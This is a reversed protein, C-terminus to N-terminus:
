LDLDQCISPMLIRGIFFNNWNDGKRPAQFGPMNTTARLWSYCRTTPFMKVQEERRARQEKSLQMELRGAEDEHRKRLEDVYEKRLRCTGTAENCGMVGRSDRVKQLVSGRLGHCMSANTHEPAKSFLIYSSSSIVLVCTNEFINLVCHPFCDPLM